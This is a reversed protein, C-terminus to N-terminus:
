SLVEEAQLLTQVADGDLPRGILYGQVNDCGHAVLFQLQEVTEVGEAVTDLDLAKAMALIGKTLAGDQSSNPLGGVFSRDIKVRDFPLGKLSSLSSYGVGFDDLTLFVGLMKTMSIANVVANGQQLMSETIEIELQQPAVGHENLLIQLKDAFDSRLLQQISVNAAVRVSRCGAEQWLRIQQCIKRLVWNGLPVILGSQEAIAIFQDPYLVGMEPHRWRVLAELGVLEATAANNQPQFQLFLENKAIARRLGNEIKGMLAVDTAGPAYYRYCNKGQEKAIHLATDAHRLLAEPDQADRPYVSIGISAAIILEHDAALIPATFAELIKEAARALDDSQRVGEMIITFEDGGLRAVIDTDRVCQRLRDAVARLLSDGTSHGFTDNITKFRDLDVFFLGVFEAHQDARAIANQLQDTFLLRNPLGTLSDHHALHRLQEESQKLPTIDAFVWVQNILQGSPDLVLTVSEWAPFRRGAKNRLIRQGQWHGTERLAFNMTVSMEEAGRDSLLRVNKGIVEGSDYETIREFAKNAMVIISENDTIVIAESASNFVAAALKLREENVHRADLEDQLLRNAQLLSAEAQARAAAMSNFSEGLIAFEHGPLVTVRSSLDGRAIAQAGVTLDRIHRMVGRATALGVLLGVALGLCLTVWLVADANKVAAVATASVRNLQQWSSPQIENDLLDDLQSSMALFGMFLGDLEKQLAVIPGVRRTVEIVAQHQERATQLAEGPGTAKVYADSSQLLEQLYQAMGTEYEPTRTVLFIGLMEAMGHLANSIRMAIRVRNNRKIDNTAVRTEYVGRLERDLVQALEGYARIKQAQVDHVRILETASLQYRDFKQRIQAIEDRDQRTRSFQQFQMLADQFDQTDDALRNRLEPTPTHLYGSVAVAIEALNIEMEYTSVSRALSVKTISEVQGVVIRTQYYSFIGSIVFLVLIIGIGLALTQRITLRM